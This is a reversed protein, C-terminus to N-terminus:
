DWRAIVCKRGAFDPIGAIETVTEALKIVKSIDANQASEDTEAIEAIAAPLRAVEKWYWCATVWQRGAFDTIGAIEPSLRPLRLFSSFM